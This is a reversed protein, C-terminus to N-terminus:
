KLRLFFLFFFFDRIEFSIRTIQIEIRIKYIVTIEISALKLSKETFRTNEPSGTKIPEKTM